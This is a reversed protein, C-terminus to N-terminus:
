EETGGEDEPAPDCEIGCNCTGKLHETLLTLDVDSVGAITASVIIKIRKHEKICYSFKKFEVSEYRHDGLVLYHERYVNTLDTKSVNAFRPSQDDDHLWLNNIETTSCGLLKTLVIGEAQGKLKIDVCLYDPEDKNPKRLSIHSVEVGGTFKFDLLM